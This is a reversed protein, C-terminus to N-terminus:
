YAYDLMQLKGKSIDEYVDAILLKIFSTIIVQCDRIGLGYKKATATTNGHLSDYVYSEFVKIHKLESYIDFFHRQELVHRLHLQKELKNYISFHRNLHLYCRFVDILNPNMINPKKDPDFLRSYALNDVHLNSKNGDKYIIQGERVKEGKFLSLVLKPVSIYKGDLMLYNGPSKLKVFKARKLNYVKGTKNILIDDYQRTHKFGLDSLEKLTLNDKMTSENLTKNAGTKGRKHIEM